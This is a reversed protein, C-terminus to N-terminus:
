SYITRRFQGGTPWVIPWPRCWPRGWPRGWPRPWPRGWTKDSGELKEIALMAGVALSSEVLQLIFLAKKRPM